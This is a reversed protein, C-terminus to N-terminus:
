LASENERSREQSVVNEPLYPRPSPFFDGRWRPNLPHNFRSVARLSEVRSIKFASVLPRGDVERSNLSYHSPMLEGMIQLRDGRRLVEIYDEANAPIRVRVELGNSQLEIAQEFREAYDHVLLCIETGSPCLVPDNLLFGTLYVSNLAFSM